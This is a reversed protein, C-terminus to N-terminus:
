RRQPPTGSSSRLLRQAKRHSINAKECVQAEQPTFGMQHWKAANKATFGCAGWAAIMAGDPTNGTVKSWAKRWSRVVSTSYGNEMWLQVESPDRLGENLWKRADEPTM